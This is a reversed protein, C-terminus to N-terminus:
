YDRELRKLEEQDKKFKERAEQLKSKRNKLFDLEERAEDLKKEADELKQEYNKDSLSDRNNLKTIKFGSKKRIKKRVIFIVFVGIIFIGGIIYYTTKSTSIDKVKGVVAGTLLGKNEKPEEVVETEEEVIAEEVVEEEIVEPEEEIIEGEVVGTTLEIEDPIFNINIPESTSVDEFTEGLIKVGDKHLNVLMDIKSKSVSSTIVLEGETGTQKFSHSEISALSGPERIFVSIKHNTLTKINIDVSALVVPMFLVLILVILLIKKM